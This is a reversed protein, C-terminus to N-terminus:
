DPDPTMPKDANSRWETLPRNVANEFANPVLLVKLDQATKAPPDAQAYLVSRNFDPGGLVLQHTEQNNLKVEITALPQDLGFERRQTAPATLTRDSKTTVLLNLLYAVSADSAPVPTPTKLLWRHGQNQPTEKTRSFSLTQQQTKITLAQVQDEKFGFISGAQEGPQPRTGQREWFYVAGGLGLALVLLILTSSKFKMSVSRKSWDDAKLSNSTPTGKPAIWSM